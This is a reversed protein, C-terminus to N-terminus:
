TGLKPMIDSTNQSKEVWGEATEWEGVGRAMVSRKKYIQPMTALYLHNLIDVCVCVVM